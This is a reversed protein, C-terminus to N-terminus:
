TTAATSRTSIATVTGTIITRRTRISTRSRSRCLVSRRLVRLRRASMDSHRHYRRSARAIGYDLAAFRSANWNQNYALQQDRDLKWQQGPPLGRTNERNGKFREGLLAQQQFERMPSNRLQERVAEHNRGEIRQARELNGNRAQQFNRAQEVRNARMQQRELSCNKGQQAREARFQRESRVQQARQARIQQRQNARTERKWASLACRSVSLVVIAHRSSVSPVSSNASRGRSRSASCRSTSRVNSSSASDAVAAAAAVACRSIPVAAEVAVAAPLRRGAAAAPGHGGGGGGQRRLPVAAAVVTAAAM